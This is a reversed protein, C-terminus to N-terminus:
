QENANVVVWIAHIMGPVWFFLTGVINIWFPLALGRRMFVAAPPFLGTLLLAIFTRGGAKSAKGGKGVSSIVWVAYIQGPVYFFLSLLCTIWFQSALGVQMFAGLPPFIWAAIIRVFDRRGEQGM